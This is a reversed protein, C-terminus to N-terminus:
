DFDEPNVKTEIVEGRKRWGKGGDESGGDESGGGKEEMKAEEVRKRKGTGRETEKM